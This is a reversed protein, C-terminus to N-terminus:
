KFSLSYGPSLAERVYARIKADTVLGYKKYLDAMEDKSLYEDRWMKRRRMEVINLFRRRSVRGRYRFWADVLPDVPMEFIDITAACDDIVIEGPATSDTDVM